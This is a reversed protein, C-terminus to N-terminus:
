SHHYDLLSCFCFNPYWIKSGMGRVSPIGFNRISLRKFQGIYPTRSSGTTLSPRDYLIYSQVRHTIFSTPFFVFRKPHTNSYLVATCIPIFRYFYHRHRFIVSVDYHLVAATGPHHSVLHTNIRARSLPEEDPYYKVLGIWCAELTQSRGLRQTNYRVENPGCVRVLCRVKMTLRMDAGVNVCYVYNGNVFQCCEM